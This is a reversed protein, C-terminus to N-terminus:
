CEATTYSRGVSITTTCYNSIGVPLGYYLINSKEVGKFVMNPVYHDTVSQQCSLVAYLM